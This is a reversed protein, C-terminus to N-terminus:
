AVGVSRADRSYHASRRGSLWIREHDNERRDIADSEVAGPLGGLQVLLLSRSFSRHIEDRIVYLDCARPQGSFHDSSAALQELAYVVADSAESPSSAAPTAPDSTWRDGGCIPAMSPLLWSWRANRTNPYAVLEDVSGVLNVANVWSLVATASPIHLEALVSSTLEILQELTPLGTVGIITEPAVGLDLLDLNRVSGTDAAMAVIAAGRRLKEEDSLSTIRATEVLVQATISDDRIENAIAVVADFGLVEYVMQSTAPIPVGREFSRRSVVSSTM